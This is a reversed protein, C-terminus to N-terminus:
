TQCSQGACNREKFVNRVWDSRTVDVQADRHRTVCEGPHLPKGLVPTALEFGVGNLNSSFYNHVRIKFFSIGAHLCFHRTVQRLSGIGRGQWFHQQLSFLDPPSVNKVAILSGKYPKEVWGGLVIIKM